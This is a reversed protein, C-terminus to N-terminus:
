KKRNLFIVAAGAVALAPVVVDVVGTHPIKDGQPLAGGKATTSAGAGAKTTSATKDTAMPNPALVLGGSALGTGNEDTTYLNAAEPTSVDTSFSLTSTTGVPETTSAAGATTGVHNAATTSISGPITVASVTTAAHTTAAPATTTAAVTTRDEITAPAAPAAAVSVTMASVCVLAAIAALIKKTKM